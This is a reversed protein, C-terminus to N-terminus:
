AGHMHVMCVICLVSSVGVSVGRGYVSVCVCVCLMMSLGWFGFVCFVYWQVMWWVCVALFRFGNQGGCVCGLFWFGCVAVVVCLGSCVVWFVLVVFVVWFGFVLGYQGGCVAVVCVAWFGFGNQGGCVAVVCGAVVCVAWFGFVLFWFGVSRLCRAHAGYVCHM